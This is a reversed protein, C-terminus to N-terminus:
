NTDFWITDAVQYAASPTATGSIHPQSMKLGSAEQTLGVGAAVSFATGSLSIGNGASYTTTTDVWPVNVVMQNDGNLQIGYTRGSTASVANAAVSQDTDSFVEVLGATSSTAIGYTTNTDTDVWPVNVVLDGDADPMVAYTRSGTTTIANATVSRLTEDILNAKFQTGSLVLGTGATYTTNTDAWPVNVVMQGAANNQIGYTRGSTTSIANAAVSQVTSSNLKVIGHTNASATEYTNNVVAWQTVYPDGQVGTGSKSVLVIWDGTEMEMPQETADDGEESPKFLGMFYEGDILVGSLSPSLIVNTNAVYYIGIASRQNNQNYIELTEEALQALTKDVSITDYFHLSDFVENPLYQPKVKGNEFISTAFTNDTFIDSATTKVTQNVWASGSWKKIVM